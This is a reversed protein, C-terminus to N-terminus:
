SGLALLQLSDQALDAEKLSKLSTFAGRDARAENRSKVGSDILIKDLRLRRLSRGVVVVLLGLSLERPMGLRILCSISLAQYGVGYPNVGIIQSSEAQGQQM